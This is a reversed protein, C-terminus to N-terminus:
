LAEAKKQKDTYEPQRNGIKKSKIKNYFDKYSKSKKHVGYCYVKDKVEDMCYAELQVKKSKCSSKQCFGIELIELIGRDLNKEWEDVLDAVTDTKRIGHAPPRILVTLNSMCRAIAEPILHRMHHEDSDLILLVESFELGKLFNLNKVLVLNENTDELFKETNTTMKLSPSINLQFLSKLWLPPDDPEFHIVAIRSPKAEAPEFIRDLVAAILAVQECPDASEAIKIFRPLPGNIGHGIQSHCTYSYSTVTEQYNEEDTRIETHVLKYIEDCDVVKEPQIPPSRTTGNSSDNSTVNLSFNSELSARQFSSIAQKSKKPDANLDTVEKVKSCVDYYQPRRICRNSQNNLYQRTIESLNNIQVTTRMVNKLTKVKIGTDTQLKDREHKIESFQRKIGNECFKDVTNIKIPQVTILITANKLEEEKNLIPILNEVEKTSLDQSNYEDVILHINKTGEEREKLLIEHKITYSLSYESRTVKVNENKEFRQKITFDLLSKRAFSVYYIVEKDKLAKLLLELKKLAVVTKGTGYNGELWVRKDDSYAIEMQYCNLLLEAQKINGTAETETVPLIPEQPTVFQLHSLYGLIKSAVAQFVNTKNKVKKAVHSAFTKIKNEVLFRKFFSKFAEISDFIEFPFIINECEKCASQSHANKGSYAVLGTVVVGTQKLEERLLFCLLNVEDIFYDVEKKLLKSEGKQLEILRIILIIKLSPNFALFRTDSDQFNFMNASNNFGLQAKIEDKTVKRFKLHDEFDYNRIILGSADKSNSIECWKNLISMVRAWKKDQWIQRDLTVEIDPFLIIGSNRGDKSFFTDLLDRCREEWESYELIGIIDAGYYISRSQQKFKYDFIKDAIVSLEDKNRKYNMWGFGHLIRNELSAVSFDFLLLNLNNLNFM